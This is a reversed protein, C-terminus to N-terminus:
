ALATCASANTCVPGWEGSAGGEEGEGEGEGEEDEDEDDDEDDDEAEEEYDQTCVPLCGLAATLALKGDSKM